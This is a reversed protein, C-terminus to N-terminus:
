QKKEKRVPQNVSVVATMGAMAQGFLHLQDETLDKKMVEAMSRLVEPKGFAGLLAQTIAPNSMAAATIENDTLGDEIFAQVLASRSKGLAQAMQDIRKAVTPTLAVSVKIKRKSVPLKKAM